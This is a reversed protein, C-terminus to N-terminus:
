IPCWMWRSEVSLSARSRSTIALTHAPHQTRGQRIYRCSLLFSDARSTSTGDGSRAGPAPTQPPWPSTRPSTEPSHHRADISARPVISLNSPPTTMKGNQVIRPSLEVVYIHTFTRGDPGAGRRFRFELPVTFRSERGRGRAAHGTRLNSFATRNYCALGCAWGPPLPTTKADGDGPHLNPDTKEFYPPRRLHRRKRVFSLKSRSM